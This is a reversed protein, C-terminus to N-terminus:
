SAGSVKTTLRDAGTLAVIASAPAVPVIVSLSVGVSVTELGV